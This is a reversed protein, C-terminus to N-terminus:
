TQFQGAGIMKLCDRTLQSTRIGCLQTSVFSGIEEHQKNIEGLRMPHPVLWPWHAMPHIRDIIDTPTLEFKRLHFLCSEIWRAAPYITILKPITKQPVVKPYFKQTFGCRPANIYPIFDMPSEAMSSIAIPHQLGQREGHHPARGTIQPECYPVWSVGM